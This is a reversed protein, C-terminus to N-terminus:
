IGEEVLHLIEYNAMVKRHGILELYDIYENTCDFPYFVAAARECGRIFQNYEEELVAGAFEQGLEKVVEKYDMDKYKIM